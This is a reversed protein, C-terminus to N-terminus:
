TVMAAILKSLVHLQLDQPSYHCVAGLLSMAHLCAHVCACRGGVCQQKAVIAFLLPRVLICPSLSVVCGRYLRRASILSRFPPPLLRVITLQNTREPLVKALVGGGVLLWLRCVVSSLQYSGNSGNSAAVCAASLCDGYM